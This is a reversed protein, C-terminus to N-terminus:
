YACLSLSYPILGNNGVRINLVFQLSFYGLITLFYVKQMLKLKSIKKEEYAAKICPIIVPSFLFSLRFLFPYLRVLIDSSFMCLILMNLLDKKQNNEVFDFLFFYLFWKPYNILSISTHLGEFFDTYGRYPTMLIIKYMLVEFIGLKIFIFLGLFFIEYMRKSFHIYESLIFLVCYFVISKHILVSLILLVCIRFKKDNKEAFLAFYAISLALCQRTINFSPIYLLIFTLPLVFIINQKSFLAGTFFCILCAEIMLFLEPPFCLRRLVVNFLRYLPETKPSDAYYVLYQRIYGATDTGVNQSRFAFLFIYAFLVSFIYLGYNVTKTSHSYFFAFIVTTSYLGLYILM